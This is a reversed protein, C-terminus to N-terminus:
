CETEGGIYLVYTENIDEKRYERHVLFYKNFKTKSLLGKIDVKANVEIFLYKNCISNLIMLDENTIEKNDFLNIAFLIDYEDDICKYDKNEIVTNDRYLVQNMLYALDTQQNNMNMFVSSKAGIRDM